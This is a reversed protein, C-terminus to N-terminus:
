QRLQVPTYISVCVCMCVCLCVCVCVCVHARACGCVCVCVRAYMCVYMCVCMCVYMCEYECVYTYVYTHTYLTRAVPGRLSSADLGHFSALERLAAGDLGLLLLGGNFRDSLWNVSLWGSVTKPANLTHTHSLSLTHTCVYAHCTHICAHVCVYRCAHMSVYTYVYM